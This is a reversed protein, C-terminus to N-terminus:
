ALRHQPALALGPGALEAAAQALDLPRGRRREEGRHELFLRAIPQAVDPEEGAIAPDLGAGRGARDRRGLQHRPLDLPRPAEDAVGDGHAATRAPTGATVALRRA